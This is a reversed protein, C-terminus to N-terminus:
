AALRFGSFLARRLLEGRLRDLDLASLALYILAAAPDGTARRFLSALRAALATRSAGTSALGAIYRNSALARSLSEVLASRMCPAAPLRRLWERRWAPFLGDPRRWNEALPALAGSAPPAQGDCLSGYLADARMWPLVKDRRALHELVPLDALVGAWEIAGKWAQPMWRAVENVLARRKALLAAEIAHADADAALGATWRRFPLDRAADLLAPLVRIAEITRWAVEDPREGFRAALRAQAYDLDGPFSM